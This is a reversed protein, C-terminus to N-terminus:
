ANHLFPVVKGAADRSTVRRNTNSTACRQSANPPFQKEAIRRLIETEVGLWLVAAEINGDEHASGKRKAADEAM